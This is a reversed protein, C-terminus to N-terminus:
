RRNIPSRSEPCNRVMATSYSSRCAILVNNTQPRVDLSVDFKNLFEEIGAKDGTLSKPAMITTYTCTCTMLITSLAHGELLMMAPKWSRVRGANRSGVAREMWVVEERCKRSEIVIIKRVEYDPMGIVTKHGPSV